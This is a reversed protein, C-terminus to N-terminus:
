NERNSESVRIRSTIALAQHTGLLEPLYLEQEVHFHEASTNLIETSINLTKQEANWNFIVVPQPKRFYAIDEVHCLFSKTFSQLTRRSIVTTACPSHTSTLRWDIAFLKASSDSAVIVNTAIVGDIGTSFPTILVHAEYSVPTRPINRYISCGSFIFCAQLVFLALSTRIANNTVMGM